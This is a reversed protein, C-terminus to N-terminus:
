ETQGGYKHVYLEMPAESFQKLYEGIVLYIPASHDHTAHIKAHCSNCLTILDCDRTYVYPSNTNSDQFKKLDGSFDYYHHLSLRYKTHCLFCMNKDRELVRKRQDRPIKNERM